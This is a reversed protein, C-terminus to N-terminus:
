VWEFSASGPVIRGGGGWVSGSGGVDLTGTTVAPVTAAELIFSRGTPLAELLEQTVVERRQSTQVDVVPSEGTVTISQEVAGVKLEVNVPAVFNAELVIGERVVTSFGPLTFTVKYTGPRLDVVRYQGGDNTVATHSKEILAPSSAEVTVGPLVAGTADKVVGAIASQGTQQALVSSPLALSGLALLAVAVLQERRM